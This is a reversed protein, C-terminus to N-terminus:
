KKSSEQASKRRGAAFSRGGRTGRALPTTPGGSSRHVRAAGGLHAAGSKNRQHGFRAGADHRRLAKHVAAWVAWHRGRRKVSLRLAQLDPGYPFKYHETFGLARRGIALAAGMHASVGRLPATRVRGVLSTYAPNVRGLAVGSRACARELLTQVQGYPFASLARNRRAASPVREMETKRRAFDLREAAVRAGKARAIDVIQAVADGMVAKRQGSSTGALPMPVRGFGLPNGDLSVLSWALHDGNIDVGLVPTDLTEFGSVRPVAEDVTVLM